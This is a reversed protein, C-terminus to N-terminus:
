KKVEKQEEIGLIEKERKAKAKTQEQEFASIEKSHEVCLIVSKGAMYRQAPFMDKYETTEKKDMGVEPNKSDLGWLNNLHREVQMEVKCNKVDCKFIIM